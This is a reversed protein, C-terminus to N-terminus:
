SGDALAANTDASLESLRKKGGQLWQKLLYEYYSDARAGLTLAGRRTFKGSNHQHVHTGSRWAKGRYPSCTQDGGGSCELFLPSLIFLIFVSLAKFIKFIFFNILNCNVYMLMFLNCFFLLLFLYYRTSHTRHSDASSESSWSFAPWRQSQATQPGAHLTLPEKGLTWTLTPSKSPTKFAPMLRFGIDKQLVLPVAHISKQPGNFYIRWM